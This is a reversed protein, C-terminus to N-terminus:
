NGIRSNVQYADGIRTVANINYKVIISDYINFLEDLFKVVDDIANKNCLKTFGVIDNQYVFVGNYQKAPKPM